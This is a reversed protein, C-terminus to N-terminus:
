QVTGRCLKERGFQEHIKDIAKNLEHYKRNKENIKSFLSLQRVQQHINGCALTISRIRVRRRLCRYLCTIAQQELERDLYIPIKTSIRRTCSINDSYRLSIKITRCALQQRRLATGAQQALSIVISRMIQTMNTDEPLCCHFCFNKTNRTNRTNKTNRIDSERHRVPTYDIGRLADYLHDVRSGCLVCLEQRSLSAAQGISVLGAAHLRRYQKAPLTPLLALPLPSLFRREEGQAVIYEGTPKVIRSAVKALLKNPAISWIPDLGLDKRMIKRIRWGIDPPPGFLRHSGTVDLYIHGQGDAREVLPSFPMVRRLCCQVAKEYHQPRPPLVTARRCRRRAVILGMGKRVGDQFAEESMDYVTARAAQPAIILPKDRLSRDTLREVAVSFDAINLHIITRARM